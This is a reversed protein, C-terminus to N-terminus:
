NKLNGCPIKDETSIQVYTIGGSPWNTGQVASPHSVDKLVLFILKNLQDHGKNVLFYAL